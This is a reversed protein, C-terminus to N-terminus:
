VSMDLNYATKKLHSHFKECILEFPIENSDLTTGLESRLWNVIVEFNTHQNYTSEVWFVLENSHLSINLTRGIAIALKELTKYSFPLAHTNSDSQDCLAFPYINGQKPTKQQTM